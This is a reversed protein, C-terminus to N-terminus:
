IEATPWGRETALRVLAARSHLGLKTMGNDRDVAVTAMSLGLMTAIERNSQGRAVLRLLQAERETLEGREGLAAETALVDPIAADSEPDDIFAPDVYSGGNAVARIAPVLYATATRKLVYGAAGARMLLAVYVREEHMTLVIIRVDACDAAIRKAAELGSVRPMSLDLLLVDPRLACACTWAQEGDTAEGVVALGSQAMIHARLGDRVVANDDAIVIRIPEDRAAAGRLSPLM